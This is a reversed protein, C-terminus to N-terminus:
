VRHRGGPVRDPGTQPLRVTVPLRSPGRASGSRSSGRAPQVRVNGGGLRGHLNGPPQRKGQTGWPPCRSGAAPRASLLFSVGRVSGHPRSTQLGVPRAQKVWFGRRASARCQGAAQHGVGPSALLSNDSAPFVTVVFGVGCSVCTGPGARPPRRPSPLSLAAGTRSIKCLTALSTLHLPGGAKCSTQAWPLLTPLWLIRLGLELPYCASPRPAAFSATFRM